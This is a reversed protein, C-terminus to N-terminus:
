FRDDEDFSKKHITNYRYKDKYDLSPLFIGGDKMDTVSSEETEEWGQGKRRSRRWRLWPLAPVAKPTRSM